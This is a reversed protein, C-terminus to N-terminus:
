EGRPRGEGGRRRERILPGGRCEGPCLRDLVDDDPRGTGLRRPLGGDRRLPAPRAAPSSTGGSRHRVRGLATRPRRGTRADAASRPRGRAACSPSRTRAPCSLEVQGGPEITLTGSLPLGALAAHLRAVREPRPPRHARAAPAVLLELELGVQDPPGHKFCTHPLWAEAAPESLAAHGAPASQGTVTMSVGRTRESAICGSINRATEERVPGYGATGEERTQVGPSSSPSPPTPWQGKRVPRYGAAGNRTTGKGWTEEGDWLDRGWPNTAGGPPADCIRVHPRTLGEWWRSGAPLPYGFAQGRPHGSAGRAVVLAFGDRSAYVDLRQVFRETSYFPGYGRCQLCRPASLSVRDPDRRSRDAGVITTM